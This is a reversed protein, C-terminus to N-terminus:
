ALVRAFHHADDFCARLANADLKATVDPDASLKDLMASGPRPPPSQWVTMASKQVLRYADERALGAQTLALMVAQSHHLGGLLALNRAMNDPYVVLKEILSRSKDVETESEDGSMAGGRIKAVMAEGDAADVFDEFPSRVADICHVVVLDIEDDIRGFAALRDDIAM